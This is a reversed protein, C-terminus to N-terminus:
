KLWFKTSILFICRTVCMLWEASSSSLLLSFRRWNVEYMDIEDDNISLAEDQLGCLFMLTDPPRTCLTLTWSFEVPWTRPPNLTSDYFPPVLEHINIRSEEMRNVSPWSRWSQRSRKSSKHRSTSATCSQILERKLSLFRRCGVADKDHFACMIMTRRTWPHRWPPKKKDTDTGRPQALYQSNAIANISLSWQRRYSVPSRM